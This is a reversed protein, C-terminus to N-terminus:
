ERLVGCFGVPEVVAAYEGDDGDEEGKDEAHQHHDDFIVAILTPTFPSPHLTFPSPHLTFPSPHITLPPDHLTFPVFRNVM